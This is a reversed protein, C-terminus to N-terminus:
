DTRIVNNWEIIKTNVNPSTGDSTEAKSQIASGFSNNSVLANTIDTSNGYWSLRFTGKGNFYNGTIVINSKADGSASNHWSVIGYGTDRLGVSEFICNEVLIDGNTGLGGGICQKSGWGTNGSNDLYMSCNRYVNKYGDTDSGREDHVDYRCNSAELHLNDLVFGYIGSNFPSFISKVNDNDGTYNFTVHAKSDFIVSVRNKLIIGKVDSNSYNVFFDSGYYGEFESVLDYEGARVYVTSYMSETAYLIGELLSTFDGNGNKDVVIVRPVADNQENREAVVIWDGWYYEYTTGDSSLKGSYQRRYITGDSFFLQYDGSSVGTNLKGFCMFLCICTVAYSNGFPTNKPIETENKSFLLRYVRGNKAFDCDPLIDSYNSKKVLVPEIFLSRLEDPEYVNEQFNYYYNNVKEDDTFMFYQTPKTLTVTILIKGDKEATFSGSQYISTTDSLAVITGDNYVINCFYAYFNRYYYTIGSKIPIEDYIETKVNEGATVISTSKHNYFKGTTRTLSLLYNTHKSVIDDLDSKLESIRDGTVKADAAAGSVTLTNDVDIPNEELYTNVLQKLNADSTKATVDASLADFEEMVSGMNVLLQSIVDAYESSIPELCEMGEGVRFASILDTNWHYLEIGDANVKKVCVLVQLVGKVQTVERTITWDFHITDPNNTDVKVNEALSSGLTKDPLMYNIYIQMTSMDVSRDDDPYRPCDFTIVNVNHDYQIGIKQESAPVTVSRDKKIVVNESM